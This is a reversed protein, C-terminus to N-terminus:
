AQGSEAPLEGEHEEFFITEDYNVPPTKRLASYIVPVVVLTAITAVALGGIVARGLPANQEGGEGFGLAMPFMGIIMAMATMLVPRVRTAGASLAAERANKGALREDNAFVVMLISNATAVGICMIAGMLSPVNFTTQTLFLAWVIGAFAGPIAMLIIMPDLWSQFNVVMLLYVLAVAGLLGIGLRFFSDQMTKYQGRVNIGMGKPLKKTEEEVIKMVQDGVGGLDRRDVNVFVDVVPQVNYHNVIGYTRGREVTALNSLLQSRDAQAGPNGYALTNKGPSAGMSSPTLASAGALSDTTTFAVNSTATGIPTRMLDDLSQFRYIPTQVAVNYNVGNAFNLWQNPAVQGSSSLSILLSSSVDRQTLGMQGAKTRDVNVRIEPSDDSQHLHVDASGPIREIRAAIQRAIQFSKAADRGTM